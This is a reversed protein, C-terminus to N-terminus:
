NKNLAEQLLKLSQDSTVDLKNPNNPEPRPEAPLTEIPAPMSTPTEYRRLNYYTIKGIVGISALVAGVAAIDRINLM